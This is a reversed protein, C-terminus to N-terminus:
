HQYDEWARRLQSTESIERALGRVGAPARSGSRLCGSLIAVKVWWSTDQSKCVPDQPEQRLLSCLCACGRPRETGPNGLQWTDKALCM